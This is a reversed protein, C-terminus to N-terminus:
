DHNTIQQNTLNNMIKIKVMMIIFPKIQLGM